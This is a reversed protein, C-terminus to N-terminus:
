QISFPDRDSQSLIFPLQPIQKQLQHGLRKLVARESNSHLTCVVTLGCGAARLADHHRMEGTLYLEAKAKLADELLDGCSGACCAARTIPGTAPGAVLLHPLNL